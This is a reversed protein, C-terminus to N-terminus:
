KCKAEYVASIKGWSGLVNNYNYETEDSDTIVDYLEFCSLSQINAL